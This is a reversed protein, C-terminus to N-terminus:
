CCPGTAPTGAADVYTYNFLYALGCRLSLSFTSPFVFRSHPDPYWLHFLILLRSFHVRNELRRQHQQQQEQSGLVPLQTPVVFLGRKHDGIM